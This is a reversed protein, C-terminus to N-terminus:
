LPMLATFCSSKRTRTMAVALEVDAADIGVLEGCAPGDELEFCLDADEGGESGKARGFNLGYGREAYLGEVALRDLGKDGGKSDCDYTM